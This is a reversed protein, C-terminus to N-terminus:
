NANRMEEMIKDLRAKAVEPNWGCSSCKRKYCEISEPQFICEGTHNTNDAPENHDNWFTGSRTNNYHKLSCYRSCFKQTLSKYRVTMVKGCEVCTYEYM